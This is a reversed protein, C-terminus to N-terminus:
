PRLVQTELWAGHCRWLAELMALPIRRHTPLNVIHRAAREAVPCSGARYGVAETDTERGFLVTPFWIGLDMRAGFRRVFEDRDRVLFSYRLWAQEELPAPLAEGYWGIRDELWRAITRRHRLNADLAALQSLGIRAQAAALRSPYPYADPLRNMGEDSWYFLLGLRRLMGLAPRGLWLVDPHRLIFEALFSFVIRRAAGPALPASRDRIQVLRAALADDNTTAFGGLHTNIVKTRDTSVFGADGLSGHPRGAFTAGFSHAADEIVYAGHRQAIARLREVDCSVGFTHQMYIARTRPTVLAEVQEPDVNFTVPGIDAYVPQVGRYVFANPVVTCTFGPIIVEDGAGLGLAEVIAYLSMRGAGFAIAHRCACRRAAEAELQRVVGEGARPALLAPWTGLWERWLNTGGHVTYRRGPPDPLAKRWAPREKSTV